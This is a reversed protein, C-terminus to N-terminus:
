FPNIHNEEHTSPQVGIMEHTHDITECKWVKLGLATSFQICQATLM